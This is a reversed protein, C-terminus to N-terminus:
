SIFFMDIHSIKKDWPTSSLTFYLYLARTSYKMLFLIVLLKNTTTFLFIEFYRSGNRSETHYCFAQRVVLVIGVLYYFYVPQSVSQLSTTLNLLARSSEQTLGPEVYQQTLMGQGVSLM